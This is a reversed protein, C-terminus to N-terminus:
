LQADLEKLMGKLEILKSTLNHGAIGAEGGYQAAELRHTEEYVRMVLGADAGREHLRSRVDDATLALGSVGLKDGLFERLARSALAIADELQSKTLAQEAKEISKKARGLATRRREAEQDRERSERRRAWAALLVFGAPPLLLAALTLGVFGHRAPRSWLGQTTTHIPLIDDALQQVETKAFAREAGAANLSEGAGPRVSLMLPQSEVTAFKEADPDFYVLRIPPFVFEGAEAAVLAQRFIASGGLKNGALERRLEPKEDYVKFSPPLTLKPAALQRVDGEGRLEVTLTASEGAALSAKSLEAGLTYRGVVGSFGDPAAPLPRVTMKVPESRLLRSETPVRGFFDDFPGGADRGSTKAVEATVTAGALELSRAELPFLAVKSETVVYRQGENTTNYEKTEGLQEAVFGDFAPLRPAYRSVQVRRYFRFTYLVQEGVFPQKDSVEATIFVARDSTGAPAAGEVVRLTLPKSQYLRGGIRAQVPPIVFTGLRKPALLYTHSVTSSVKGNVIQVQTSQGRAHAEFDPLSPLLPEEPGSGELTVTLIVGDDRTTEDRNLEASVGAALAPAASGLVVLLTTLSLRV